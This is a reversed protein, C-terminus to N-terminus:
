SLKARSMTVHMNFLMMMIVILMMMAMAMIVVIMMMVMRVAVCILFIVNMLTENSVYNSCSTGVDDVISEVM